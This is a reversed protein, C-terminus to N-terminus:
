DQRGVPMNFLSMYTCRFAKCLAGAQGIRITYIPKCPVRMAKHMSIYQTYLFSLFGQVFTQGIRALLVKLRALISAAFGEGVSSSALYFIPRHFIEIGYM